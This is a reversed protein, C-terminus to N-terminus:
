DNCKKKFIYWSIDASVFKELFCVKGYENIKFTNNLKLLFSGLYPKQKTLQTPFFFFCPFYFHFNALMIFAILCLIALTYAALVLFYKIPLLEGRGLYFFCSFFYGTQRGEKGGRCISSSSLHVWVDQWRTQMLFTRRHWVNLHDDNNIFNFSFLFLQFYIFLM